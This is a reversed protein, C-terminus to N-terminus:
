KRGPIWILGTTQMNQLVEDGRRIKLEQHYRWLKVKLDERDRVSITPNRLRVQIEKALRVLEESRMTAFKQPSCEDFGGPHGQQVHADLADAELPMVRSYLDNTNGPITYGHVQFPAMPNTSSETVPRKTVPTAPTQTSRQTSASQKCLARLMEKPTKPRTPPTRAEAPLPLTKNFSVLDAFPVIPMPNGDSTNLVHHPILQMASIASPMPTQFSASESLGGFGGRGPDPLESNPRRKKGLTASAPHHLGSACQGSWLDSQVSDNIDRQTDTALDENLQGWARGQESSAYYEDRRTPSNHRDEDHHRRPSGTYERRSGLAHRADVGAYTSDPDQLTTSHYPPDSVKDIANSEAAPPLRPHSTPLSTHREPAARHEDVARRQVAPQWQSAPYWRQAELPSSVQEPGAPHARFLRSPINRFPDVRTQTYFSELTTLAYKRLASIDPYGLWLWDRTNVTELPPLGWELRDAIVGAAQQTYCTTIHDRFNAPISNLRCVDLVHTYLEHTRLLALLRSHHDPQSYRKSIYSEQRCYAM